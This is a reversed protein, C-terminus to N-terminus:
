WGLQRPHEGTNVYHTLESVSLEKIELKDLTRGRRWYDTSHIICGIRVISEMCRVSVGYRAAFSAIPDLSMPIDEFLYRHNLSPPAKIGSYGTQNHIAEYLTEGEANYALKLWEMATRARIGLSSAVTIRERDLVELVRSVSHTAGEIYFEFNGHTSEVWGTNLLTLAPHFIAGMNNLGVHLVNVGDIFQPYVDRTAELVVKTDTAPLAALPVTEKIAFIRAQAPGESRSAYIFTETEALVIDATCKRQRLVAAFELTGGTRGPHLIIIQGDKLHPSVLRAIDRHASSPTVVMIINAGDLAKQIDSTILVIEGFGRPGGEFSELYIGGREAIMEVNNYTRNYLTVRCGMLAMHAAMAKGGNGAGIVTYNKKKKM